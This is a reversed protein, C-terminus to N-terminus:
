RGPSDGNRAVFNAGALRIVRPLAARIRYRLGSAALAALVREAVRGPSRLDEVTFTLGSLGFHDYLGGVKDQYEMCVAPTGAGIAAIALHMRCSVVVDLRACLAKVQAARLGEAVITRAALSEPLAALTRHAVAVDDADLRLDHPIVVFSPEAQRRALQAMVGALDDAADSPDGPRLRALLANGNVGVVRRGASRQRAVWPLIRELGTAVPELLFAPDATLAVPVDLLARARAASRPDRACVRVAHPVERLARAAAEAPAVNLSMGVISAPTGAEVARVLLEVREQVPGSGYFGDLVDAGIVAVASPGAPGRDDVVTEALSRGGVAALAADQGQRRLAAVAGAIM